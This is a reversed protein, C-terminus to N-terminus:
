EIKHKAKSIAVYEMLGIAVIVWVLGLLYGATVDTLFHVGLYIRSLGILLIYSVGLLFLWLRLKKNEIRILVFYCLIGALAMASTAHGSPFSFSNEPTFYAMNLPRERHFYIKSYYMSLSSGLVSILLALLLYWQKKLLLFLGAVTTGITVGYFTGLQTFYYFAKSMFPTRMNFFWGSVNIDFYKVEDSNVAHEAIESLMFLNISLLIALVTFPLGFFVGPKFRNRIFTFVRPYNRALQRMFPRQFFAAILESVYLLHAKFM